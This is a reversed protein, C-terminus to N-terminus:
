GNVCEEYLKNLSSFHCNITNRLFSSSRRSQLKDLCIIYDTIHMEVLLLQDAKHPLCSTVDDIYFTCILQTICFSDAGPTVEFVSCNRKKRLDMNECM